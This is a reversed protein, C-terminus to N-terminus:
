LLPHAVLAPLTFRFTAGRHAGNQEAWLRGGHAEIITRSIALGLGMGREKTTFFPEFLHPSNEAPIGPGTDRVFVEVKDPSKKLAGLTISRDLCRNSNMAEMANLLLNLLVQQLHMRDGSVAPLGPMAAIKLMVGRFAADSRSLTATEELLENVVM